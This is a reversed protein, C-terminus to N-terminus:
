NVTPPCWTVAFTVIKIHEANLVPTWSLTARVDLRETFGQEANMLAIASPGWNIVAGNVVSGGPDSLIVPEPNSGVEYTTTVTEIQASPPIGSLDVQYSIALFGGIGDAQLTGSL